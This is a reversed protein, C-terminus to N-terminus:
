KRQKFVGTAIFYPPIFLVAKIKNLTYIVFVWIM